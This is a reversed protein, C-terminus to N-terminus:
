RGLRRRQTAVLPDVLLQLVENPVGPATSGESNHLLVMPDGIGSPPATSLGSLFDDAAQQINALNTSAINGVDDVGADTVGWPVYFRGRGRRGGRATLKRVLVAVNSPAFDAAIAGEGTLTGEVTLPEGSSDGIRLITPGILVGADQIVGFTDIWLQTVADALATPFPEPEDVELGFTVEGQHSGSVHRLLLDVAAFGPPILLSMDESYMVVSTRDVM